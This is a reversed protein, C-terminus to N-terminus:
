ITLLAWVQVEKDSTKKSKGSYLPPIRYSIIDHFRVIFLLTTM